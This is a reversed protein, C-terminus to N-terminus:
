GARLSDWRWGGRAMSELRFGAKNGTLEAECRKDAGASKDRIEKGM